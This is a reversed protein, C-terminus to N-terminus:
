TIPQIYTSYNSWNTAAKYTNVSAAPVYIKLDSSKIFVSNGLTPPTTALVTVSTLGQYYFSDNAINTVGSPITVSTLSICGYFAGQGISTVSNPITVSTLGTCDWFTMKEINTISDPIVISTLGSCAEFASEGISTVSNPITVSTILGRYAFTENAISTCGSGIEASVITNRYEFIDDKTLTGTGEIEVIDGNSLTLRAKGGYVPQENCTIRSVDEIYDAWATKYADVSECPVYIPHTTQYFVHAGDLTPPTTGKFEVWELNQCNAFVGDELETVNATITASTLGANFSFVNGRIINIDSPTVLNTLPMGNVYLTWKNVDDWPPTFTSSTVYMNLWQSLSPINVREIATSWFCDSLTNVSSPLTIQKISSQTFCFDLTEVGDNVVVNTLGTINGFDDRYKETMGWNIIDPTLGTLIETRDTFYLTALEYVDAPKIYRQKHANDHYIAMPFDKSGWLMKKILKNKYIYAM